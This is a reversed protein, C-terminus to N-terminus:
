LGPQDSFHYWQGIIRRVYPAHPWGSDPSLKKVACNSTGGYDTFFFGEHLLPVDTDIRFLVIVGGDDCHMGWIDRVHAPRSRLQILEISGTCSNACFISGKRFDDVVNSYASLNKVFLLNATLRGVSPVITFGIVVFALSSLAPAAWLGSTHRWNTIGARISLGFLILLVLALAFTLLICLIEPIVYTFLRLILFSSGAAVILRLMKKMM